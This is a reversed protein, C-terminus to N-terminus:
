WSLRLRLFKPVRLVSNCSTCLIMTWFMSSTKCRPATRESSSVFACFKFCWESLYLFFAAVNFAVERTAIPAPADIIKNIKKMQYLNKYFGAKWRRNQWALTIPDFFFINTKIGVPNIQLMENASLYHASIKWYIKLVNSSSGIIKPLRNILTGGFCFQVLAFSWSEFCTKMTLFPRSSYEFTEILRGTRNFSRSQIKWFTEILCGPGDWFYISWVPKNRALKLFSSLLLFLCDIVIQM